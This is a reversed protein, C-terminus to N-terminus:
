FPVDGKRGSMVYDVWDEVEAITKDTLEKGMKFAEIAFGHRVKGEAIKDWNPSEKANTSKTGVNKSKPTVFYESTGDNKSKHEITVIDGKGYKQLKASLLTTAFFVYETGEVEMGYMFWDGNQNSGTKPEDFLLTADVIDGVSIILKDRNM